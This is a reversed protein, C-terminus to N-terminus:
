KQEKRLKIETKLEEIYELFHSLVEPELVVTNTVNIGNEATLLINWGDFDVYAGDGLYRKAKVREIM